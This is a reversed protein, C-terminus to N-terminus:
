NFIHMVKSKGKQDSSDGDLDAGEWKHRRNLIYTSEELMVEPTQKGRINQLANLYQEKLM